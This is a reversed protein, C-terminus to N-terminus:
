SRGRNQLLAAGGMEGGKSKKKGEKGREGTSNGLIKARKKGRRDQDDLL